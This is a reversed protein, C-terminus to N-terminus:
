ETRNINGFRDIEFGPRVERAIPAPRGGWKILPLELLAVPGMSLQRGQLTMPLTLVPGGQRQPANSAMTGLVVRAMTADRARVIGQDELREIAQFFGRVHTSLAGVPQLRGDLALTGAIAIELPAWNIYLREIEIVGGEDRWAMLSERMGQDEPLTGVMRATLELDQWAPGLPAPVSPPLALGSGDVSLAYSAKEAPESAEEFVSSSSEPQSLVATLRDLTAAPADDPVTGDENLASAPVARVEALDLSLGELRGGSDTEATAQFREAAVQWRGAPRGLDLDVPGLPSVVATFPSWARAAIDLAAMRATWGGSEPPAVLVADPLRVRIKLPFGGMDLGGHRITWGAARREAIWTEATDRLAHAGTFWLVAYGIALIMLFLPLSAYKLLSKM